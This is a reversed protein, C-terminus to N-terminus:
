ISYWKEKELLKFEMNEQNKVELEAMEAMKQQQEKQVEFQLNVFEEAYTKQIKKYVENM